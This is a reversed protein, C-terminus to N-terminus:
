AQKEPLLPLVTAGHTLVGVKGEDYRKLAEVVAAEISPYSAMGMREADQGTLGSSVLAIDIRQKMRCVAVAEAAAVLNQVTGRDLLNLLGKLDCGMYEAFSPHPGTGEPCAAVLILTGGDATMMDGSALAKTAQWLDMEYPHASAIVVPYQQEVPVGYVERAYEVGVRHALRADGAVCRYLANEHTLVTNVIFDLGICESVFAELDLRLPSEVVGLQNSTIHAIQAHFAAVTEPSCVGPLIIKSGGGYGVDLHPVIMGLGIRIDAQAVTRNVRAPIGRPSTGLSVMHAGDRAPVNVIQFARSVSPGVKVLIEEETMPRHTGLAIVVAIDAPAIGASILRDLVPPLMLRTPTKRTIDDIVVAVKQGPHLLESLSPTGIPRTLAREITAAPDFVPTVSRPTVVEGLRDKAIEISVTGGEFPIEVTSL